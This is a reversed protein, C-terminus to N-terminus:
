NPIKAVWQLWQWPSGPKAGSMDSKDVGAQSRRDLVWAGDAWHFGSKAYLDRSLLNKPTEVALASVRDAGIAEIDECIKALATHEVNLGVVRCSMVFQMITAGHVVAVCTLGYSSFRDEVEFAYVVGGSTFHQAWEAETWRHGTTNFQNTKNLLEFARSSRPDRESIIKHDHVKLALSELFTERPMTDKQKDRDIQARIMETRASSERSITVTDLEPSWLLVRRLYYPDRGLVRIDPFSGAVAAREAPNDDIFVVSGPLVNVESIVEAINEVKPRWNIKISAFSEIPLLGWVCHNWNERILAEDNKSVIALVVGRRKLFALAETFGLPWGEQTGSSGEAFVGRWLTDDLDIIVLKVQDIQRATRYMAELEFIVAHLLDVTKFEYYDHMWDPPVIRNRDHEYDFTSLLAGHSTAWVSDDQAYKRGHMASIQDADMMHVNTYRGLLSALHRNLEEVFFVTNRLEYRPLFRGLLNRQPVLFNSVLTLLGTQQNYALAADLM